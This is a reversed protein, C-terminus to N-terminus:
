ELPDFLDLTVTTTAATGAAHVWLVVDTTTGVPPGWELEQFTQPPADGFTVDWGDLISTFDTHQLAVAFGSTAGVHQDTSAAFHARTLQTADLHVCLSVGNNDLALPGVPTPAHTTGGVLTFQM